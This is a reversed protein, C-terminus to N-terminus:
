VTSARSGPSGPRLSGGHLRPRVGAVFPFDFLIARACVCVCVFLARACVCVYVCVCVCVCRRPKGRGCAPAPAIDGRMGRLPRGRAQRGPAAPGRLHSRASQRSRGLLPISSVGCVDKVPGDWPRSRGDDWVPDDKARPLRWVGRCGRIILSVWVPRCSRGSITSRKHNM